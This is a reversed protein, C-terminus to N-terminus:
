ERSRAKDVRYFREFVRPIEREAIGIGSDSVVIRALGDESTVDVDIQGGEPTYKIANSLVNLLVQDIRDRDIVTLVKQKPDFLSNIKLNKNAATIEVKLLAGIVVSILNTEKKFWKEQKNDLKSLQLLERVLRNMRDTEEDIINLFQAVTRCDNIETDLLTETYSKITTLPTKLEHSVNAVFDRQMNELKQQETIDLLVVIMGADRDNEDKFRDYRVDYVRGSKEVTGHYSGLLCSERINEFLLDKSFPLIIDNYTKEGIEEQKIGLMQIAAHNALIIRGETDLALLGDAMNKLIAELKNKESNIEALTNNLKERLLNFMEALRGIEDDSRVSVEQSFDGLSMREAKATVDNITETISRAIFFGLVVTLLLAVFMAQLFVVRSQQQTKYVSTIDARLCVLGKMKGDKDIPFVMTKVPIGSDLTEDQETIQGSMGRVLIGQDLLDLGSKEIYNPNSSAIIVFDDDVVFLEERLSEAWSQIDAQIEEKYKTFDDYERLSIVSEQVIKTFNSRILDMQYAELQSMMFVGIVTMAIFVLLFYILVIRFRITSWKKRTLM